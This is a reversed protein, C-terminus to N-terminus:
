FHHLLFTKESMLWLCTQQFVYLVRNQNHELSNTKVINFSSLKAFRIFIKLHFQITFRTIKKPLQM